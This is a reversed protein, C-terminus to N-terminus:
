WSILINHKVWAVYFNVLLTWDIGNEENEQGSKNARPHM